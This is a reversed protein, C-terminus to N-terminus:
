AAGKTESADYIGLGTEPDFFHLSRTDVAVQVAEGPRVRSRAGFRGVLTASDESELAGVDRDEGVDEKLERVDDTMAHRASINFHVMIESGLAETLQTTGRITQAGSAGLAADELDEPRIGLVVDRGEYGKLAPRSALADGVDISQDGIKAAYGGNSRELTAEIMNM